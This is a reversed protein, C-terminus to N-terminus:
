VRERCSARGIETTGHPRPGGKAGEDGGCPLFPNGSKRGKFIGPIQFLRNAPPNRSSFALRPPQYRFVMESPEPFLRFHQKRKHPVKVGATGDRKVHDIGCLHHETDKVKQFFFIEPRSAAYHGNMCTAQLTVLGKRSKGGLLDKWSWFGEKERGPYAAPTRGGAAPRKGTEPCKGM